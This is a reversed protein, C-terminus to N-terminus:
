LKQTDINFERLIEFVEADNPVPLPEALYVANETARDFVPDGSSRVVIVSLVRGGPTVRVRVICYADRASGPPRQWKSSVKLGIMDIYRAAKNQAAAMRRTQSREAEEAALQQQLLDQAQKHRRAAAAKRKIIARRKAAKQKRLRDARRKANAQERKRFKEREVDVAPPKIEPPLGTIVRAQIINVAAPGVSTRSWNLTIMGLLLVHVLLALWMAKGLSMINNAPHRAHIAVVSM